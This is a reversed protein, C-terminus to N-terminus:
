FSWGRDYLMLRLNSDKGNQKTGRSYIYCTEVKRAGLSCVVESKEEVGCAVAIIYARAGAMTNISRISRVIVGLNQM